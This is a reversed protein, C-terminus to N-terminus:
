DFLSELELEADEDRRPQPVMQPSAPTPSTHVCGDSLIPVANEQHYFESFGPELLKPEIKHDRSETQTRPRTETKFTGTKIKEDL